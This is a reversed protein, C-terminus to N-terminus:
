ASARRTRMRWFMLLAVGGLLMAWTSPEPIAAVPTGGTGPTASGTSTLTGTVKNDGDTTGFQFVVNNIDTVSNVGTITITFSATQNLFPNHPGNGDLSGNGNSYVNSLDPPGVLTHAPGAGGNLDDVEYTAGSNSLKWGTPVSAGVTYTGDGAITIVNASSSAIVGPTTIAPDVTFSLASVNQVVSRSNAELDTVVFSVTNDSTTFVVQADVPQGGTSAGAPTTFTGTDASATSVAALLTSAGALLVKKAFDSARSCARPANTILVRRIKM